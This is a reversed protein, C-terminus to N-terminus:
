RAATEARPGSGHGGPRGGTLSLPLGRRRATWVVVATMIVMGSGLPLLTALGDTGSNAVTWGIKLALGGNIVVLGWGLSRYWFAACLSGLLVPIMALSVWTVWTPDAFLREEMELVGAMAPDIEEPEPFWFFSTLLAAITLALAAPRRTWCFYAMPLFFLPRIYWSLPNLHRPWAWALFDHIQEM